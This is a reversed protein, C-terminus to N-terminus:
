TADVLQRWDPQRGAVQEPTLRLTTEPVRAVIALRQEYHHAAGQFLPRRWAVLEEPPQGLFGFLTLALEVDRGVPARGFLGSRASAVAAAGELADETREGEALAVRDAFLREAVLLAYGQDPGPTGLSRGRPQGAGGLDGVREPRWVRPASLRSAPRVQDAEVIPVYSPQTM